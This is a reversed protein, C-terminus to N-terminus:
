NCALTMPLTYRQGLVRVSAEWTKEAVQQISVLSMGEFTYTGPQFGVPWRNSGSPVARLLTCERVFMHFRQAVERALEKRTIPGDEGAISIPTRRKLQDYSPWHLSFVIQREGNDYEEEFFPTDPNAMGRQLLCDQMSTGWEEYTYCNNRRVPPFNIRRERTTPQKSDSLSPFPVFAECFERAETEPLPIPNDMTPQHVIVLPPGFVTTPQPIAITHQNAAMNREQPRSKPKVVRPMTFITGMTGFAKYTLDAQVVDLSPPCLGCAVFWM